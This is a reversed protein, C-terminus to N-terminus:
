LRDYREGGRKAEEIGQLCLMYLWKGGTGHLNVKIPKLSRCTVTFIYEDQEMQMDVMLIEDIRLTSDNLTIWQSM